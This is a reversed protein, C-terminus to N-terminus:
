DNYGGIYKSLASNLRDRHARDIADVVLFSKGQPDKKWEEDLVLTIAAGMIKDHGDNRRYYMAVAEIERLRHPFELLNDRLWQAAYNIRDETHDQWFKWNRYSLIHRYFREMFSYTGATYSMDRIKQENDRTLM